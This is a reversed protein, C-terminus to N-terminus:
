PAHSRTLRDCRGPTVLVCAYFLEGDDPAQLTQAYLALTDYCKGGEVEPM